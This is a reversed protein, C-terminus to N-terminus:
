SLEGIIVCGIVSEGIILLHPPTDEGSAWRELQKVEPSERVENRSFGVRLGQAASSIAEMDKKLKPHNAALGLFPVMENGLKISFHLKEDIRELFAYFLERIKSDGMFHIHFSSHTALKHTFCASISSSTHYPMITCPVFPLVGGEDIRSSRILKPSNSSPYSLLPPLLAALSQYYEAKM